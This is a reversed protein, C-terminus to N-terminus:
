RKAVTRKRPQCLKDITELLTDVEFPKALFADAGARLATKDATPHASIMIIPIHRTKASGKLKKAVERGDEEMLLIDLIILDPLESKSLGELYGQYKSIAEVQYGEQELFIQLASLITTEDDIVLIKPGVTKRVKQVAVESHVIGYKLM